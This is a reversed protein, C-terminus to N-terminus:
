NLATAYLGIGSTWIGTIDLCKIKLLPLDDTSEAEMKGLMQSCIARESETRWRAPCNAPVPEGFSKAYLANLLRLCSVRSGGHILIPASESSRVFNLGAIGISM